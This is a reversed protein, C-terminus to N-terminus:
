KLLLLKKAKLYNTGAKLRVWYVGSPVLFGNDDRSDWTARYEAPALHGIMLARVQRGLLDYIRIEVNETYPVIYKFNVNQNFPNPYPDELQFTSPPVRPTGQAEVDYQVVDFNISEYSLRYIYTTGPTLGRDVYVYRAGSPETGRGVLEPHDRWNAVDAFTDVNAARRALIFGANETESAVTWTLRLAGFLTDQETSFGTVNVSLPTDLAGMPWHDAIVPDVGCDISGPGAIYLFMTHNPNASHPFGATVFFNTGSEDLPISFGDFVVEGGLWPSALSDILHDDALSFVTDVSSFLKIQSATVDSGPALNGIVSFRLKRLVSIGGFTHLSLRFMPTQPNGPVVHGSGLPTGSAFVATGSPVTLGNVESHAPPNNLTDRYQVSMQYICRTVLAAGGEIREVGVSAALSAPQVLVTKGYGISDNSLILTHPSGPDPDGGTQTFLIRVSGPLATEPQDFQVTVGTQYLTDNDLPTLIRGAQTHNDVRMPSVASTDVPNGLSDGYAIRLTYLVSDVLLNNQDSTGRGAVSDVLQSSRLSSMDLTVALYGPAEAHVYVIHPSGPDRSVSTSVFVLKVSGRRPTEPLYAQLPLYNSFAVSPHPAPPPWIMRPPITLNDRPWVYGDNSVSVNDNGLSDGYTLTVRYVCPSVLRDYLGRNNDAVQSNNTGIDRGDLFFHVLGPGYLSPVLRLIHPSLSDPNVAAIDTTDIISTFTLWVTDAPEPLSYLVSMSSDSSSSGLRPEYLTPTQTELDIQVPLVTDRATPNRHIDQYSLVFAYDAGDTLTTDGFIASVQTTDRLSNATIHLTNHGARVNRLYLTHPLEPSEADLNYIGLTIAGTDADEPQDYVFDFRRPVISGPLPSDIQPHFTQNDIFKLYRAHLSDVSNDVPIAGGVLFYGTRLPSLTVHGSTDSAYVGLELQLSQVYPSIVDSLRTRFRIVPPHAGPDVTLSAMDVPLVVDGVPSRFPVSDPHFFVRIQDLSDADLGVGAVTGESGAQYSVIVHLSDGNIVITDRVTRSGSVGMGLIEPLQASARTAFAVILFIVLLALSTEGFRKMIGSEHEHTEVM